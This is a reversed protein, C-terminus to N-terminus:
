NLGSEEDEWYISHARNQADYAMTPVESISELYIKPPDSVKNLVANQLGSDNHIIDRALAKARKPNDADVLRTMYFRKKTPGGDADMLFNRGNLRVLYTTMKNEKICSVGLQDAPGPSATSWLPQVQFTTRKALRPRRGEVM